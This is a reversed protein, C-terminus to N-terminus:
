DAYGGYPVKRSLDEDLKKRRLLRHLMRKYWRKVRRQSTHRLQQATQPPHSLSM